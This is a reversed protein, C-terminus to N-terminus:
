VIKKNKVRDSALNSTRSNNANFDNKVKYNLEERANWISELFDVGIKHSESILKMKDDEETDTDIDYDIIIEIEKFIAETAEILRLTREKATDSDYISLSEELQKLRDIRYICNQFASARGEIIAKFRIPPLQSLDVPKEIIEILKNISKISVRVIDEKTKM